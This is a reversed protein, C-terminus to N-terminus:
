QHSLFDPHSDDIDDVPQDLPILPEDWLSAADRGKEVLHIGEIMPQADGGYARILADKIKENLFWQWPANPSSEDKLSDTINLAKLEKLNRQITRQSRSALRAQLDHATFLTNPEQFMMAVVEARDPPMSSLAIDALVKTEATTVATKGRIAAL